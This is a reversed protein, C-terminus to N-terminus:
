LGQTSQPVSRFAHPETSLSMLAVPHRNEAGDEDQHREDDQEAGVIHVLGDVSGEVHRGIVGDLGCVQLLPSPFVAVNCNMPVLVHGQQTMVASQHRAGAVDQATLGPLFDVARLAHDAHVVRGRQPELRVHPVAGRQPHHRVGAHEPHDAPGVVEQVVHVAVAGDDEPPGRVLDPLVGFPRQVSQDLPDAHRVVVQGVEADRGTLHAPKVVEEVSLRAAVPLLRVRPQACAPEGHDDGDLDTVVDLNVPHNRWVVTYFLRPGLLQRVVVVFGSARVLTQHVDLVLAAASPVVVAEDRLLLHESAPGLLVVDGESM